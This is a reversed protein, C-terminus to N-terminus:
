EKGPLRVPPHCAERTRQPLVSKLARSRTTRKNNWLMIAMLHRRLVYVNAGVKNPKLLKKPFVEVSGIGLEVAKRRRPFGQSAAGVCSIFCLQAGNRGEM